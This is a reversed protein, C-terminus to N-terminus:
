SASIEEKKLTVKIASREVALLSDVMLEHCREPCTYSWWIVPIHRNRIFLSPDVPMNSIFHTIHSSFMQVKSIVNLM